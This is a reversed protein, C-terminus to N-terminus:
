IAAITITSSAWLIWPRTTCSPARASSM